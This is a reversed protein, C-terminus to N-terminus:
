NVRHNTRIRYTNNFWRSSHYNRYFGDIEQAAEEPSYVLLVLHLDSPLIYHNAELQERM